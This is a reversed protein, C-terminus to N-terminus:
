RSLAVADTQRPWRRNNLQGGVWTFRLGSVCILHTRGPTTM